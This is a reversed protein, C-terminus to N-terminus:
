FIYHCIFLNQFRALISKNLMVSINIIEDMNMIKTPPWDDEKTLKKLNLIWLMNIAHSLKDLPTLYKALFIIHM